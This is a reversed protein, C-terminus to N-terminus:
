RNENRQRQESRGKERKREDRSLEKRGRITRLQEDVEAQRLIRKLATSGGVIEEFDNKVQVEVEDEEM